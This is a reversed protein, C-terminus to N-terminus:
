IFITDIVMCFFFAFLYFISFGFIQWAIKTKAEENESSPLKRGLQLLTYNQWCFFLGMLLFVVLSFIGLNSDSLVLLISVPLLAISYYLMQIHTYREGAVVPMMPIGAAKYDENKNLALAWFHPPTWLFVLLFMLIAQLELKGTVAAWGVLPPIAGAAGGIVINQPTSRKLWMTYVFVYFLHGSLALFASFPNLMLALWIIGFFGLILSYVAAFTTSLEGTVLPRNKTRSMIRDIDVDWICNIISASSSVLAGGIIANLISLFSVKGSSALIMPCATTVLLLSLVKPKGIEYIAKSKKQITTLSFLKSSIVSDFTSM